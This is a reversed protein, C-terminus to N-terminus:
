QLEAVHWAVRQHPEGLFVNELMSDGAGTVDEVDTPLAPIEIADDTTSLLSGSEGLRVWVLEIGRDHLADAAARVQRDTRTPMGTLAALEDRNPTVAYIREDISDRLAAAKPM